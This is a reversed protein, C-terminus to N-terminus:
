STVQLFRDEDFGVQKKLMHYATVAFKHAMIGRALKPCRRAELKQYYANIGESSPRAHSLIQGFANKLYPNGMKSNNGSYKNRGASSRKVRIVRSYSAYKQVSPFRNIDHTEYLISLALMDGVGSITKLLGFDVGNHIYAREKIQKEISGILEDLLKIVTLDIDVLYHVDADSIAKLIEAKGSVSKVDKGKFIIIGQQRLLLQVHTYAESRIHVLRQRRRLLDRVARMEKPYPYAEPFLNSRMLHAITEADLPDNKKKNGAIAKMYAAHGLYFPIDAEKCGDYLWYYNFTSECGIAIDPIFRGITQKFLGFNNPMNRKLLVQGSQDVVKIYMSQAHLDAGCFYTSNIKAYNM